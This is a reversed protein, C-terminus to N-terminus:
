LFRAIQPLAWRAFRPGYHESACYIIGSISVTFGIFQFTDWMTM